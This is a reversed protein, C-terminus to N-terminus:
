VPCSTLIYESVLRRASTSASVRSLRDLRYFKFGDYLERISRHHANSIVVRCGKSVLRAATRALRRQDEWSFIQSNYKVFGNSEHAVTYPPDLYVFDGKCADDLAQEFDCCRIDASDLCTSATSLDIGDTVHRHRRGGYPVNFEGNRNERYIGNFSLASLYILRAARTHPKRPRSSRIWYYDAESNPLRYLQRIVLDPTDRIARYCEILPENKDSLVSREPRLAFFLAGGGLFPEFYRGFSSPVHDMLYSVLFRKGGPWRLFPQLEPLQIARPTITEELIPKDSTAIPAGQPWPKYPAVATVILPFTVAM